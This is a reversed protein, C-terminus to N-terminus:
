DPCQEITFLPQALKSPETCHANCARKARIRSNIHALHEASPGGVEIQNIHISSINSIHLLASVSTNDIGIFAGFSELRRVHGHM